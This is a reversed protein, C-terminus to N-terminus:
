GKKRPRLIPERGFMRRLWNIAHFVSSRRVLWRELRFKGPFDLLMVGVALTLVGQGPALLMLLGALALIIGLVNKGVLLVIRLTPYDLWTELPRRHEDVFYNKPLQVLTWVVAVATVVMLGLSGAFLWWLLADNAKAWDLLSDIWLM